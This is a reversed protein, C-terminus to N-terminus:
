ALPGAVLRSIQGLEATLTHRLFEFSGRPPCRACRKGRTRSVGRSCRESDGGPIAARRLEAPAHVRRAFSARETSKRFERMKGSRPPWELSFTNSKLTSVEYDGELAWAYILKGSKNKVTGLSLAEGAPPEAASSKRFERRARRAAGGRWELDGKPVFWAGADKKSWFPGGPHVLLV